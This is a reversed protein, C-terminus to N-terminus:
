EVSKKKTGWYFRFSERDTGSSTCDVRSRSLKISSMNGANNEQKEKKSLAFLLSLCIGFYWAVMINTKNLIFAWSKDFFWSNSIEVDKTQDSKLHSALRPLNEIKGKGLLWISISNSVSIVFLFLWKYLLTVIFYNQIRITPSVCIRIIHCMEYFPFHQNM